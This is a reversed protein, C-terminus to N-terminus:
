TLRITGAVEHQDVQAALIADTQEDSPGAGRFREVDDVSEWQEFVNIRAPDLADASIHFDICGPARRAAEIVPVCGALYAQRQQPAVRMWGSVIIM